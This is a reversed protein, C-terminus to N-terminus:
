AANISWCVGWAAQMELKRDRRQKQKCTMMHQHGSRAREPEIDYFAEEDQNLRLALCCTGRSGGPNHDRGPLINDMERGGAGSEQAWCTQHCTVTTYFPLSPPAGQQLHYPHVRPSCIAGRSGLKSLLLFGELGKQFVQAGGRPDGSRVRGWMSRGTISVPSLSAAPKREAAAVKHGSTKRDRTGSM